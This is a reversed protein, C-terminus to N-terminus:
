DMSEKGKGREKDEEYLRTPRVLGKRAPTNRWMAWIAWLIAPPARFVKRYGSLYGISKPVSGTDSYWRGIYWDKGRLWKSVGQWTRSIMRSESCCETVLDCLEYLIIYYRWRVNLTHVRRTRSSHLCSRSVERTLLWYRFRSAWIPESM